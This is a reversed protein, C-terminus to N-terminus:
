VNKPEVSRAWSEHLATLERVIEPKAEAHDNVEPKPEALYHLSVRTTSTRPNIVSILKWDGRRVAWNRGWAFHLVEHASAAKPDAIVRAMSHGDLKPASAQPTVGCLDLVTPFWDMITVIQDRVQGAPIKAPYRIIAPVRIGGEFFTGKNGIWQGTNGGGGNALYYHGRPYGSTHDDVSVGANNETSHGNDSMFIVVTRDSLGTADLKDLVRGIHDDVSSIMRAYAQRPMPLDAYADKFKATPQMPYHPLNFAVTMFFPAAKNAEIFLVARDIMMDPYYEDRRFIETNGDYLDHYGRGHLFFHRYNDIFGSLHGFHEDFGQDLPGHGVQAGLHWKGFLATRYGASKLAEALTVEEPAMFLNQRDSGHRDGQTWNRVGGRQPHRGTFLAARSPCCVTHGYAQTFRVGGAALRDINPTKLDTSGYCNADLTGQDDTLLIVVNPRSAPAAAARLAAPAVLLGLSLIFLPISPRM